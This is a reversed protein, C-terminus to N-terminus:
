VRIEVQNILAALRRKSVQAGARLSQFTGIGRRNVGASDVRHGRIASAFRHM